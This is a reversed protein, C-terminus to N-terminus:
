YRSKAVGPARDSWLSRNGITRMAHERAATHDMGFDMNARTKEELRFLLEEAVAERSDGLRSLANLLRTLIAM